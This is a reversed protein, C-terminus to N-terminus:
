KKPTRWYGLEERREQEAKELKEKEYRLKEEKSDKFIDALSYTAAVSVPILFPIIVTFIQMWAIEKPFTILLSAVYFPLPACYLMSWKYFSRDYEKTTTDCTYSDGKKGIRKIYRVKAAELPDFANYDDKVCFGHIVFAIHMLPIPLMIFTFVSLSLVSHFLILLIVNIILVSIFIGLTVTRRKKM